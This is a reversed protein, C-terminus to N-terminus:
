IDGLDQVLGGLSKPRLCLLMQLVEPHCFGPLVSLLGPCLKQRSVLVLICLSRTDQSLDLASTLRRHNERRASPAYECCCDLQISKVVTLNLVAFVRPQALQVLIRVFTILSPRLASFPQRFSLTNLRNDSTM